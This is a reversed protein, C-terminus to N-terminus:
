SGIRDAWGIVNIGRGSLREQLGAQSVPNVGLVICDRDLLEVDEPSVVSKEMCRGSGGDVLCNLVSSWYRPCYGALLWSWMSAGFNFVRDHHAARRVLYADLEQWKMMYSSRQQFLADVSHQPRPPLDRFSSGGSKALAVVQKDLLANNQPNPLWNLVRLDANEALAFLDAPRFSFNHDSWLMENSAETADPLIMVARGDAALGSALDRFFGAADTVHQLVNNSYILDYRRPLTAGSGFRMSLVSFGALRAREANAISPELGELSARPYISRVCEMSWGIGCGVDLISRPEFDHGLAARMWEAMAVYRGRDFREVGPREYYSQYREEYFRGHGIFRQDRKRLLGCSMCQERELPEPIIVGATTISQQAAPVPLAQWDRNSCVVCSV